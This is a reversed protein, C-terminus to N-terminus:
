IGGVFRGPALLADPDFQEKVRRMLDLGSVPGWSDVESRVPPPAALVVVSGQWAPAADRLAKVFAAVAAPDTGPLAAHLVGVGGSGRVAATTGAAAAARDIGELLRGTGTLETTAKVLVSRDSGAPLAGWWDPRDIRAAGDGLTGVAQEARAAVGAETGEVLVAVEVPGGAEPRDLEIAAPVFQAHLAQQVAQYAGAADPVRVSVYAAAPPVPHLRFAAETVLGLTGYAGTVLKALDYGAVNKVVKGGAKAVVGDARVMTVGLVLDRVAGAQLRRPGTVGTGLMGGITTGPVVEDVALRQRDGALREGLAALPVGAQAIVVLDGAAHEVIRDLRRTDVILDLRRPPTGWGLKTGAGRAVVALGEAAAIRVVAAAEATSGPAAVFRAPVRDVADGDGAQEAHGGAAQRLADLVGAPGTM